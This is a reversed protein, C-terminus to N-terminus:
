YDVGVLKRNLYGYREYLDLVITLNISDLKKQAFPLVEFKNRLNQDNDKLEDL